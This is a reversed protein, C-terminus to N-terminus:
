KLNINLAWPRQNYYPNFAPWKYKSSLAFNYDQLYPPVYPVDTALPRTYAGFAITDTTASFGNPYASKAPAAALRVRM